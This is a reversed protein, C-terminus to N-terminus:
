SFGIWRGAMAVTLWTAVTLVTVGRMSAGTAGRRVLPDFVFYTVLLAVSLSIM